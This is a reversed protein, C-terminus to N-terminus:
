IRGKNLYFVDMNLLLTLANLRMDFFYFKAVCIVTLSLYFKSTLHHQAFYISAKLIKNLNLERNHKKRSKRKCFKIQKCKLFWIFWGLSVKLSDAKNPQVTKILKRESGHLKTASQTM